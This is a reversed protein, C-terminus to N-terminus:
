ISDLQFFCFKGTFCRITSVATSTVKITGPRCVTCPRTKNWCNGLRVSITFFTPHCTWIKKWFSPLLPRHIAISHPRWHQRTTNRFALMAWVSRHTNFEAWDSCVLWKFLNTTTATSSSPSWKVVRVPFPFSLVCCATHLLPPCPSVISRNSVDLFWLSFFGVITVVTSLNM